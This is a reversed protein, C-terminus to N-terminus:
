SCSSCSCCSNSSGDDLAERAIAGGSASELAEDSLPEIEVDNAENTKQEDM